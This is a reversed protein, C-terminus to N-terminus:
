GFAGVVEREGHAITPRARSRLRAGDHVILVSCPAQLLVGRAVSGLVLRRLGTQGRSGIVIVPRGSGPVHSSRTPRTAPESTPRPRRAAPACGRSRRRAPPGPMVNPRSRRPTPTMAEAYLPPAVAAAYPFGGEVVTVVTVPLGAFLPWGRVHRPPGLTPRVMTPWCSRDWSTTACSSSRVRRRISSRPPSRGSCGRSGTAWGGTASSWWTPTWRARRTSSRAPLADAPSSRERGGPGRPCIPDGKPTTSRRRSPRRRGIGRPGRCGAPDRMRGPVGLIESRNPAVSVLRVLGDDLRPMSAILRRSPQGIGLRRHRRLIRM